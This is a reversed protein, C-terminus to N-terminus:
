KMDFGIIAARCVLAFVVSWRTSVPFGVMVLMCVTGDVLALGGCLYLAISTDTHQTHTSHGHLALLM